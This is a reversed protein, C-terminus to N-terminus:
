EIVALANKDDGDNDAFFLNDPHAFRNFM